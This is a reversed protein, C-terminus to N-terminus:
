QNLITKLNGQAKLLDLEAVKFKILENFYNNQSQLYAQEADLFETLSIVQEQYLHRTQQYVEKALERNVEQANVSKLSNLLQKKANVFQMDLQRNTQTKELSIKDLAVKSQQIQRHKRLGDFIPIELQVGWYTQQFWPENGDFFNFESRQAQWMQQGFLSLTPYYQAIISQKELQTLAKQKDIIKLSIQDVRANQLSKLNIEEISEGKRLSIENTIPMGMLFKLYNKQQKLSADLAQYETNINVKNVKVRGYDTKKVLDNEMQVKMLQELHDLTQLNSDLVKLKAELQLVSYFATSVEYIVDEETGEKLLQYLERSSKSAKLATLFSQDYLLQNVKIAGNANYETGFQVEIESGPQGLLEGPLIQTPLNPFNQYQGEATVQPLGSSMVEMEKFKASQQDYTAQQISFSHKLSYELVEKLSLNFETKEAQAKITHPLALLLCSLWSIIRNKTM